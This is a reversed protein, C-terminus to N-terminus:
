ETAASPDSAGCHKCTGGEYSHGLAPIAAEELKVGCRTCTSVKLGAETCTADKQTTWSGSHGKAPIAERGLETGCIKCTNVKEGSETCTAETTTNWNDTHGKAATARSEGSDEGCIGCVKIEVGAETCTPDKESVWTDFSHVGTPDTARTETKDCGSCSRKESGPDVCTPQKDASWDGFTHNGTAPIVESQKHSCVTCTQERQGEAGCTEAKTVVWQGFTHGQTAPIERETSHTCKTCAVKEIGPQCTPAKVTTPTGLTHRGEDCASHVKITVTTEAATYYSHKAISVTIKATGTGHITVVGSSDVTAVSSDSSAYTMTGGSYKPKINLKLTGIDNAVDYSTTGTLKQAQPPVQRVGGYLIVKTGVSINNYIKSATGLPLNVCGHSGNYLYIEGGFAGRWTADHLGYGGHFPMWYNVFTRYDEGVLYTDLKKNYLSYVGTPTCMNEAVKGSVLKSSVILEGNKYFWLRQATLNVEVYTGGYPMDRVGSAQYPATRTESTGDKMCQIIDEVLRDIDVYNGNYSVTINVTSGATTKFAGSKGEISYTDQLETAYIEVAETDIQPTIGDDAIYVFSRLVEAPIQLTDTKGDRTFSYSLQVGIMQNAQALANQLSPDDASRVPSIVESVGTLTHQPVLNVIAEAAAAVLENPNSKQGNADPLLAYQGAAEDFVIAANTVAKNFNQSMIARLKGENFSVLQSFDGAFGNEMNVAATEFVDQSCKLDIDQAAISLTAGDVDLALTYDSAAAAIASWAAEKTMGSIDVGAVTTAAPFTYVAPEEAQAGKGAQCGCFCLVLALALLLTWVKKM